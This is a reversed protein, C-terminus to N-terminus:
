WLETNITENPGFSTVTVVNVHRKVDSDLELPDPCAKAISKDLLVSPLEMSENTCSENSQVNVKKQRFYNKAALRDKLSMTHAVRNCVIVVPEDPSTISETLCSYSQDQDSLHRKSSTGNPNPSEKFNDKVLPLSTQCITQKQQFERTDLGNYSLRKGISNAQDENLGNTHFIREQGARRHRQSKFGTECFRVPSSYSHDEDQSDCTKM